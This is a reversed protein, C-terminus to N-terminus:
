AAVDNNNQDSYIESMRAYFNFNNSGILDKLLGFMRHQNGVWDVRKKNIFELSEERTLITNTDFNKVYCDHFMIMNKMTYFSGAGQYARKWETCKSTNDPLKIMKSNFKKLANYLQAYNEAREVKILANKIPGRVKNNIEDVFYHKGKVTKYPRGQCRKTKRSEIYTKLNQIYDKCTAVVVDKTFFSSREEFSERDSVELKSLVRIEELMMTFQYKYPFSRNLCSIYGRTGSAAHNYNMMRFMQAMVWRRHLQTNRVYGNAYIEETSTSVDTAQDNVSDVNLSFFEATDIGAAQLTEVRENRNTSM